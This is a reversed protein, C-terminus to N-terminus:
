FKIGSEVFFWLSSTVWLAVVGAFVLGGLVPLAWGTIGPRTLLLMKATFVGFFVCGLMSHIVVRVDLIQFGLAYLCHVAVPITLVFAIRGSWRHAARIWVPAPTVRAERYIVSASFLQFLALLFAGTALWVKLTLPGSFGPIDVPIGTPVHLRGYLGLTVFVAAGITLPVLLKALDKAPPTRESREATM